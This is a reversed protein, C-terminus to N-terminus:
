SPGPSQYLGAFSLAIWSLKSSGLLSRLLITLFVILGWRVCFCPNRLSCDVDCSLSLSLNQMPLQSVVDCLVVGVWNVFRVM